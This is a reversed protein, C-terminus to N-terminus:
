QLLYLQSQEEKKKVESLRNKKKEAKTKEYKTLGTHGV